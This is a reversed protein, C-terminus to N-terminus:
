EQDSANSTKQETSTDDIDLWAKRLQWTLALVVPGVFLGILGHLIMGGIAGILIVPMPIKLGKGLLVPNLFNDLGGVIIAYITFIIAATTSSHSFVYIIMPIMILIPPLQIIAFLIVLVAWLGAAPIGVVAFGIGALTGQILAILVLGKVVSLITDRSIDTFEVGRGNTVKDFFRSSTQYLSDAYFLLFGAIVIAVISLIVDTAFGTIASYLWSVAKSVEDSYKTLTNELDTAAQNWINYIKEGVMPWDQVNEPPSSITLTGEDLKGKLDKATGILSGSIKISPILILLVLVISMATATLGSKGKFLGRLKKFFPYFAVGIIIAWVVVVIFPQFILFSWLLLLSLLLIQIYISITNNSSNSM